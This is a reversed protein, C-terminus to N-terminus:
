VYIKVVSNLELGICSVKQVNILITKTVLKKVHEQNKDRLIFTTM